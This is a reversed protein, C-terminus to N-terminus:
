SKQNMLSVTEAFNRFRLDVGLSKISRSSNIKKSQRSSEKHPIGSLLSKKEWLNIIDEWKQPNNDSAIYIEGPKGRLYAKILFESLDDLHIMNVFKQSKGVLGKKVWNLPNLHGGYIGASMVLTAGETKLTSESLARQNSLDFPSSEEVELNQHSVLFSGTTGVVVWRQAISKKKKFFKLAMEFPLPPFTWFACEASPLDDWTREDEMDFQVDSSLSRSTALIQSDPFQNILDRKLVQGLNGEGLVLFRNSM